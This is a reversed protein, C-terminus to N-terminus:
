MLLGALVCVRQILQAREGDGVWLESLTNQPQRVHVGASLVSLLLSFRVAFSLRSRQWLTSPLMNDTHLQRKREDHTTDILPQQRKKRHLSGARQAFM